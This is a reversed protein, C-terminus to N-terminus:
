ILDNCVVGSTENVKTRGPLVQRARVVRGAQVLILTTPASGSAITERDDRMLGSCVPILITAASGPVITERGEQGRDCRM